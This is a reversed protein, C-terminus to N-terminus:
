DGERVTWTDINWLLNNPYPDFGEVENKAVYMGTNVYLFVYPQEDYIIEQMQRYINARETLGCGPVSNATAELAFYAENYFSTFNFGIGPEDAVPGFLGDTAPNYPYSGMIGFLTADYTQGDVQPLVDDGWDADVLHVTIGIQTLQRAVFDTPPIRGEYRFLDFEMYSGNFGADVERAYLCDRCILRNEPGAPLDPNEPLWGAEALMTLALQPDYPIPELDSNIAWSNPNVHTTMRMGFGGLTEEILSDVDIAHAIAQRTLKDGFIPHLGQNIRQRNEDLAPQPNDPDAQNLALFEVSNSPFQYVQLLGARAAELFAQKEKFSIFSLVNIEGSLFTEVTMDDASIPVQKFREPSVYGSANDHYNENRLLTVSNDATLEGFRFQGSVVTPQQFWEHTPLGEYGVEEILQRYIHAPVVYIYEAVDSLASCSGQNFTISITHEDLVEINEITANIQAVGADGNNNTEPHLQLDYSMMLDAATIPIGDSWSLDDRLHLTLVQNGNAFEWSEVLAGHQNPAFWGTEPDVGLLSIYMGNVLIQCGFGACFNPSGFHLVDTAGPNGLVITGGGNEQASLPAFLVALCLILVALVSLRLLYKM